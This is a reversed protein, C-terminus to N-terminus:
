SQQRVQEQMLQQYAGNWLSPNRTYKAIKIEEFHPLLEVLIFPLTDWDQRHVIENLREAARKAWAWRLRFQEAKVWYDRKEWARVSEDIGADIERFCYVLLATMDRAEADFQTKQGLRRIVEAATRMLQTRSKGPGDFRIVRSM